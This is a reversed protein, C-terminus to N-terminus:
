LNRRSSTKGRQIVVVPLKRLFPLRSYVSGFSKAPVIIHIELYGHPYRTFSSVGRCQKQLSDRMLSVVSDRFIAMLNVFTKNSDTHMLHDSNVDNFYRYSLGGIELTMGTEESLRVVGTEDGNKIQDGDKFLAVRRLLTLPHNSSEVHDFAAKYVTEDDYVHDDLVKMERLVSVLGRDEKVVSPKSELIECERLLIPLSKIDIIDIMEREEEALGSCFDKSLPPDWRVKGLQAQRFSRLAELITEDNVDLGVTLFQNIPLDSKFEFSASCRSAIIGDELIELGETQVEPDFDGEKDDLLIVSGAMSYKFGIIEFYQQLDFAWECSDDSPKKPELYFSTGAPIKSDRLWQITTDLSTFLSVVGFSCWEEEEETDM